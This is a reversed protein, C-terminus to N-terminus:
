AVFAGVFLSHERLIYFIDTCIDRLFVNCMYVAISLHMDIIYTSSNRWICQFVHTVCVAGSTSVRM